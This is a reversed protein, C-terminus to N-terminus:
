ARGALGRQAGPEISWGVCRGLQAVEPEELEEEAIERGGLCPQAEGLLLQGDM